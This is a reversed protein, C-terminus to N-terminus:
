FSVYVRGSIVGLDVCIGNNEVEYRVQQEWPRGPHDRLALIADWPAESVGFHSVLTSGLHWFPRGLHERPAFVPGRFTLFFAGLEGLPM